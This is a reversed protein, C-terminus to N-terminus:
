VSNHYMWLFLNKYIRISRNSFFYAEEFEIGHMPLGFGFCYLFDVPKGDITKTKMIRLMM